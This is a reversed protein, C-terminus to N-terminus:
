MWEQLAIAVLVLLAFVRIARDPPKLRQWTAALLAGVGLALLLLLLAGPTGGWWVAVLFVLLVGLFAFAPHVRALPGNGPLIPRRWDAGRVGKRAV